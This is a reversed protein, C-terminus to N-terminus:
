RSVILLYGGIGGLLLTPMTAALLPSIHYVMSIPGFFANLIYFAFGLVIGILIRLGMSVSRLPGFIFPVALCIMVITSLPQFIRRWFAFQYENASLGSRIRYKIYRNLASLVQQDTELGAIGILRPNLHVPWVQEPYERVVVQNPLFQSQKIQKFLWHGKVFNGTAAYSVQLLQHNEDFQYFNIDILKGNNDVKIIQLFNNGDRVWTGHRTNKIKNNTMASNKYQSAFYNTHPAMWEGLLTIFILMIIAAKIVVWIIQSKSVGAARMVILESHTALRGLGMLTGILAAMPFFEYLRGPLLLPVYIIAQLLGYHNTGIDQLEAAFQIFLQVGILALLVIGTMIVIDKVIYQSLIKM